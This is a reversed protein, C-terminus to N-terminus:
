EGVLARYFREPDLAEPLGAVQADGLEMIIWQGDTRRAVDMTFFRSQVISAERAFLDLPITEDRYDGEEWYASSLWPRQDRVFVRFERTLPMKSKSHTSLPELPVFERYVLGGTLRDGQLEIFRETVRRVADADRASPIFCAEDWDHKQSKVYDKLVLSADGFPELMALVEDLAFRSGTTTWVSAPTHTRLLPYWEPLHHAHRYQAEDNVLAMGRAALARHLAAYDTVSMMWGRFVAEVSPECRPVRRVAREFAREDLAASDVLAVALGARQAAEYELEFSSDVRKPDLPHSLFLVHAVM